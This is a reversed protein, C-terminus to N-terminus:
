ATERLRLFDSTTVLTHGQTKHCQISRPLTHKLGEVEGHTVVVALALLHAASPAAGGERM